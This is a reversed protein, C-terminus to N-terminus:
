GWLTQERRVTEAWKAPDGMRLGPDFRLYTGDASQCGISAAYRMRKLSNVRGMHCWKGRARAEAVVAAAGDGLKWDTTGGVFLVDIDHWPVFEMLRELGDQAVLAVKYGLKRIPGYLPASLMLTGPADGVIDPATAFLCRDALPQMKELWTLYKEDSYEHPSAYRGSDAAWPQGEPPTQRMRPTVMAPLGAVIKGSLYM